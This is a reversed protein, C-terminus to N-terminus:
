VCVTECILSKVEIEVTLAKLTGTNYNARILWRNTLHSRPGTTSVEGPCISRLCSIRTVQNGKEVRNQSLKLTPKHHFIHWPTHCREPTESHKRLNLLDADTPRDALWFGVSELRSLLSLLASPASLQGWVSNGSIWAAANFSTSTGNTSYGSYKLWVVKLLLMIEVWKQQNIKEHRHCKPWVSINWCSFPLTCFCNKLASSSHNSVINVM